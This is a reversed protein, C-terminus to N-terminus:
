EFREALSQSEAVVRSERRTRCSVLPAIPFDELAAAKVQNRGAEKAEYLLLDARRILDQLQRAPHPICSSIGLSITVRDAVTSSFHPIALGLVSHRLKEGVVQAGGLPTEPLICAFEEGGYRAPLDAPRRLARALSGAVKRLCDDGAMHGCTDNYGKFLDIDIMILSIPKGSRSARLWEQKLYEDFRRRNPIGTLGDRLSLNELFDRYRKLELHNRVRAQVIPPSVPKTIYDIAGIDLGRREDEVESMATIFIVPITSTRADAKLRTCVEYGDMGPMMVDLLILDPCESQALDLGESGNTAALVDYAEGLSEALVEINSPVDDVILVTSRRDNSDM